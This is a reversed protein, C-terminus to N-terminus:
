GVDAREEKRSVTKADTLLASRVKALMVSAGIVSAVGIVAVSAWVVVAVGLSQLNGQSTAWAAACVAVMPVGAGVWCAFGCGQRGPSFLVCSM